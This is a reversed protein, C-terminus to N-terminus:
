VEKDDGRKGGEMLIKRVKIKEKLVVAADAM